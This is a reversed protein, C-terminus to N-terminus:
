RRRDQLHAASYLLEPGNIGLANLLKKTEQSVPGGPTDKAWPLGYKTVFVLGADEENKPQKRKALVDRLAQVTEPWLPCRRAIGTKPRPLRDHGRRPGSRYPSPQRRRCQRVRLQHWSSDDGEDARRRRRAATRIEDATFLKAGQEARHLRVTKKTPRKFEPGFRMPVPLLGADYGFKFVCRVCQITNGLRYPGWSKAMKHRLGPSTRRTSTQSWGRKGFHVILLDTATKYGEWTRPSLEGSAVLAKKANLFRNVLEKVTM